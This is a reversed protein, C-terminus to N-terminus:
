EQTVTASRMAGFGCALLIASIPFCIAIMTAIGLGISAGGGYMRDSVEAILVPGMGAGLTGTVLAFFASGSGRLENPTVLNLAAGACTPLASALLLFASLSGLFVWPNSSTTAILGIPTAAVLCGAYWRMQADRYGRRYLADVCYGSILNGLMGCIALVLGLALGIQSASWGFNRAMHAPYWTGAGVVVILAIGFGLYHFVFFRGRSRMFVFLHRYTGLVNRWFNSQQQVALKGRRLPEPVTFILLSLFAGPIGVVYFVAQWSRIEGVIPLVITHMRAVWDVIKGGLLYACGSGITSGTAFVAMATTLRERPFFDAIMSTASPTLGAEGAGVGLRAVLLQLFNHVMGCAASAISWITVCGFIIWRRNFRDALAGAGLGFVAFALMFATGHLIGFQVDSIGLDRKIPDVLLSIIFRDLISLWYLFAFVTTAYWAVSRAPYAAEPIDGIPTDLPTDTM